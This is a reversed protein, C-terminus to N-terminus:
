LPLTGTAPPDDGEGEPAPEICAADDNAPTNVHRTVPYMEMVDEPYTRLLPRLSEPDRHEPDLWAERHEPPVIVPMRDHVTAVMPNPEGTVITCSAIGHGDAGRWFAWLGAFTFVGGSKMRIYYPTKARGSRRRKAAGAAGGQGGEAGAAAPTGPKWEYFGDAPVLCRRKRFADRFSPKEDLTEARANIMRSGISPDKSWEPILGWQLLDFRLGHRLAPVPQTPAINWRPAFEEPIAEIPLGLERALDVRTTTLSYRGCM